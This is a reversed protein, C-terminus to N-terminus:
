KAAVAGLVEEDGHRFSQDALARAFNQAGTFRDAPLKELAKRIAVDVNPPVAKRVASASVPIGQIIKGLVAQATNGLYPPEGVLM